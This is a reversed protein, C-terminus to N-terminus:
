INNSRGYQNIYSMISSSLTSFLFCCFRLHLYVTLKTIIWVHNNMFVGLSIIRTDESFFSTDQSAKAIRLCGRFPYFGLSLVPLRKVLTQLSKYILLCCWQFYASPQLFVADNTWSVPRHALPLESCTFHPIFTFDERTLHCLVCPRPTQCTNVGVSCKTFNGSLQCIGM